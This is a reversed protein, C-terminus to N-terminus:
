KYGQEVVQVGWDLGEPRAGVVGAPVRETRIAELGISGTFVVTSFGGKDGERGTEGIGARAM